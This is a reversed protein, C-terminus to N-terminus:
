VAMLGESKVKLHGVYDCWLRIKDDPFDLPLVCDCTILDLSPLKSLIVEIDEFNNAEELVQPSLGYIIPYGHTNYKETDLSNSSVHVQLNPIHQPLCAYVKEGHLHFLIHDFLNSAVKLTSNDAELGFQRYLEESLIEPQMHQTVYFLGKVNRNKFAHLVAITNSTIKALAQHILPANTQATELFFAMGCAQILQSLPCFITAYVPAKSGAVSIEAATLIEKLLGKNFDLDPINQLDEKNRLGPELIMRRGLSDGEMNCDKINYCTTLWNGAPTLKLFDFNFQAQLEISQHALLKGSQDNHPHHKWFSIKM